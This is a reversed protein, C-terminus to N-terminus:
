SWTRHKEAVHEAGDYEQIVWEVNNPIEIIKLKAFAGNAEDGLDEITKILLPDDRAIYRESFYAGEIYTGDDNLPEKSYHVLFADDGDQYPRYKDLQLRGDSDRLNVFPYLSMGALEAYHMVAKYSLSFGGFCANIVIKM